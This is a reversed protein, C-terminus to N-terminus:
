GHPTPEKAMVSRVYAAADKWGKATAMLIPKAPPQEEAQREIHRATRDMAEQMDHLTRYTTM